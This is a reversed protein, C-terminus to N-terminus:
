LHVGFGFYAKVREFLTPRHVPRVVDLVDIAAAIMAGAKALAEQPTNGPNYFEPKWPWSTEEDTLMLGFLDLTEAYMTYSRAAALLKWGDELPTADYEDVDHAVTYGHASVQRDRKHAIQLTGNM